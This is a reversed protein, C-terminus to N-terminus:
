IMERSSELELFTVSRIVTALKQMPYKKGYRGFTMSQHTHSVIQAVLSEEIEKQKLEDIFTHRFSYATLRANAPMGIAAQLRGFQQCYRKSWDQWKGDPKYNFLQICRAAKRNAVYDLFGKEILLPHIPVYRLSSATKIHQDQGDESILFCDIGEKNCIDAVRLQCAESPRLGQYLMITTILRFEDPKSQFATSRYLKVLDTISWREREEDQSKKKAQEQVTIDQFPNDTVYKMQKCWKFFQRCSALYDKNTKYSRGEQYLRDRFRVADASTVQSVCRSTLNSLFHETRQKLQEITLPRVKVHQKSIIFKAFAKKVTIITKTKTAPSTIMTVTQSQLSSATRVQRVPLRVTDRLTFSDRVQNVLVDVNDRFTSPNYEQFANDILKRLQPVLIFNREVAEDRRKTLLSIKLDFPFGNDRLSKPLCIRTYYTSNPARFLYM